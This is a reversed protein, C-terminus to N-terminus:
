KISLIFPNDSFKSNNWEQELTTTAGSKLKEKIIIKPRKEEWSSIKLQEKDQFSFSQKKKLCTQFPNINSLNELLM